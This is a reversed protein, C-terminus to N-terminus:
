YNKLLRKPSFYLTFFFVCEVIVKNLLFCCFIMKLINTKQPYVSVKTRLLFGSVENGYLKFVKLVYLVNETGINVIEMSKESKKVNEQRLSVLSTLM